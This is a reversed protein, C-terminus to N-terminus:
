KAKNILNHLLNRVYFLEIPKYRRGSLNRIRFEDPSLVNGLGLVIIILKLMLVHPLVATIGLCRMCFLGSLIDPSKEM